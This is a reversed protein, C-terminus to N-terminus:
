HYLKPQQYLEELGSLMNEYKYKIIKIFWPTYKLQSEEESKDIQDLENKLAALNIWKFDSIENQNIKLPDILTDKTTSIFIDDKENEIFGTSKCKAKYEFSFLKYIEQANLHFGFEQFLRTNLQLEQNKKSVPHSCCTNAWLNPFIKHTARKQMLLNYNEDFLFLSFALHRVGDKHTQIKDQPLDSEALLVKDFSISPDINKM